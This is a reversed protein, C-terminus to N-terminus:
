QNKVKFIAKRLVSPTIAPAHGDQPFYIVFQGPLVTFFNHAPRTHFTIDDQPQYEAEELASLPAYGHTEVGSIPIQIDIMRRHTEVLAEEKSKPQTEVINVYLDEGCIVIKGLPLAELDHTQLFEVVNGFLPNLAEYQELHEIVDM